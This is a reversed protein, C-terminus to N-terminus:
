PLEMWESANERGLDNKLRLRFQMNRAVEVGVNQLAPDLLNQIPISIEKSMDGYSIRLLLQLTQVDPIRAFQQPLWTVRGTLEPYTGFSLLEKRDLVVSGNDDKWRYIGLEIRIGREFARRYEEIQPRLSELLADVDTGEVVPYGCRPCVGGDFEKSCVLCKM